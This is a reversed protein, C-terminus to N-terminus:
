GSLGYWGHHIWTYITYKCKGYKVMFFWGNMYTFIGTKHILLVQSELLHTFGQPDSRNFTSFNGIASKAYNTQTHKKEYNELHHERMNPCYIIIVHEFCVSVTSRTSVHQSPEYPQLLSCQKQFSSSNMSVVYKSQSPMQHITWCRNLYYTQTIMPIRCWCPKWKLFLNTDRIKNAANSQEGRQRFCHSSRPSQLWINTSVFSFRRKM